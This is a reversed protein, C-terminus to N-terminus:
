LAAVKLVEKITTLGEGVKNLGDQLLTTMGNKLAVERIDDSSSNAVMLKSIEGDVSMVEHLALRGRYGTDACSPCGVPKFFNNEKPPQLGLMSFDDEEPTYPIKCKECLRRILRQAVVAELASSVLYPEVGMEILRVVASPADNTHLTSLVLHGTLAAEIAIKATSEDRIEGVLVVDPDQRLISRLAKTWTLGTKENIQVQNIHPLRYEVPDEVTIVNIEPTSITNLTTYLTTSKGSGTPGTVLIMGHPKSYSRRFINFNDESMQMERLSMTTATNSLIRMVIKEGWVVPLSSIRLDIGKGNYNVTMRGDQPRMREAINMGSIVKVRSIVAAQISTPATRIDKLVGDIRYRVQLEHEGPDFHIDSARDQIAQNITLTVFRVIPDDSDAAAMDLIGSELPDADDVLEATISSLEDDARVWRSLALEMDDVAVVVPIPTKGTVSQIDDLAVLNGPDVIAVRIRGDETTGLPIVSHRRMISDSLLGITEEDIDADALVTHDLGLSTALVEAYTAETILGRRVLDRDAEKSAGFRERSQEIQEHSLLGQLLLIESVMTMDTM